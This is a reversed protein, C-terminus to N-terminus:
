KNEEAVRSEEVQCEPCDQYTKCVPTKDVLAPGVQPKEVLKKPDNENRVAANSKKHGEKNSENLVYKVCVKAELHTTELWNGIM